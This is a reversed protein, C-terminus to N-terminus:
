VIAVVMEYEKCLKFPILVDEGLRWVLRMGLLIRCLLM